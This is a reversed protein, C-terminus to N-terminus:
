DPAADYDEPLPVLGTIATIRNLQRKTLPPAEDVIRKIIELSEPSSRYPSPSTSDTNM